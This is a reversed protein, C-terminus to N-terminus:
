LHPAPFFFMISIGHFSKLRKPRYSVVASENVQFFGLVASNQPEPSLRRARSRIRM